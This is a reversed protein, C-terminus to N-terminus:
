KKPLLAAEGTFIKKWLDNENGDFLSEINATSSIIIKDEELNESGSNFLYANIQIMEGTGPQIKLTYVPNALEAPDINDIFKSASLNSLQRLYQDTKSSDLQSHKITRWNNDMNVLQFSSDAPYIFELNKWNEFGSVDGLIRGNRFSDANQNFTAQLFGDVEYVDVDNGLRVYTNMTRPQQFAFRGIILDLSTKGNEKVIVRTGTSDVQFEAWKTESRAALRKPKIELLQNFMATIKSEPVPVSKNENIKVKWFNNEKVLSVQGHAKSTIYIESVKATDIDILNKRFTRENRDDSVFMVVVIITLVALVIGLNRNSKNSFM